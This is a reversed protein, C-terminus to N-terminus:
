HEGEPEDDVLATAARQAVMAGVKGEAAAQVARVIRDYGTCRCLNGAIAARIEHESPQPNEELFASAMMLFGPTCFGCQVAGYQVFARQLITPQGAPALGEITTVSAGDAEPTLMLCSHVPKGDVHVTCAGCDGTGCGEKTGTLGLEDRLFDLLVVSPEVLREVEQGNVKLKVRQAAM